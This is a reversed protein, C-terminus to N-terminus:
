NKLQLHYGTYLIFVIIFNETVKFATDFLKEVQSFTKIYIKESLCFLTTVVKKM